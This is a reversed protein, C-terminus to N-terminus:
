SYRGKYSQKELEKAERKEFANHRENYELTKSFQREAFNSDPKQIDETVSKMDGQVYGEKAMNKAM